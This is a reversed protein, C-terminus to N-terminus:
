HTGERCLDRHLTIVRCICVVETIHVMNELTDPYFVPKDHEFTIVPCKLLKILDSLKSTLTSRMMEEVGNDATDSALLIIVINLCRSAIRNPIFITKTYSVSASLWVEKWWSFKLCVRPNKTFM